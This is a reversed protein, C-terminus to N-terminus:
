KKKGGIGIEPYHAPREFAEGKCQRRAREAHLDALAIREDTAASAGVASVVIHPDARLEELQAPSIELPTQDPRPAEVVRVRVLARRWEHGACLRRWHLGVPDARVEFEIAQHRHKTM